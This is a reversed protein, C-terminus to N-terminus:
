DDGLISSALVSLGGALLGVWPGFPLVDFPHIAPAMHLYQMVLTYGSVGALILGCVMLVFLGFLSLVGLAISSIANIM